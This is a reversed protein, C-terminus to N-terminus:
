LALCLKITNGNFKLQFVELVTRGYLYAIQGSEARQYSGIQFLMYQEPLCKGSLVILPILNKHSTSSIGLNNLASLPLSHWKRDLSM